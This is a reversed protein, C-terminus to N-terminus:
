GQVELCGWPPIMWKGLFRMSWSGVVYFRPSQQSESQRSHVVYLSKDVTALTSNLQPSPWIRAVAVLLFRLMSSASLLSWPDCTTQVLSLSSHFQVRVRSVGKEDSHSPQSPSTRLQYSSTECLSSFGYLSTSDCSSTCDCTVRCFYGQIIGM